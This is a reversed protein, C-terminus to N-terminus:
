WDTSVLYWWLRRKIERVATSGHEITAAPSDVLHLSINKAATIASNHLFRFRTSCGEENYVGFALMTRAQCEELSSPSSVALSELINSASQLWVTSIRAAQASNRLFHGENDDENFFSASIAGLSLILAGHVPDGADGREVRDYFAKLLSLTSAGHIIPLMYLQTRFFDQFLQAAENQTM